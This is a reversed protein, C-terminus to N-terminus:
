HIILKEVFVEENQDGISLFYMGPALRSIDLTFTQDNPAVGRIYVQQGLSNRIQLRQIGDASLGEISVNVVDKAPNPFLTVSLEPTTLHDTPSIRQRSSQGRNPTDSEATSEEQQDEQNVLQNPTSGEVFSSSSTIEASLKTVCSLQGLPAVLITYDGACLDPLIINGSVPSMVEGTEIVEVRFSGANGTAALTISGTCAQNTAEPEVLVIEIRASLEQPLLSFLLICLVLINKM